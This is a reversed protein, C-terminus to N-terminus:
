QEFYVNALVRWTSSISQIKNLIGQVPNYTFPQTPNSCTVLCTCSSYFLSSQFLLSCGTWHLSYVRHLWHLWINPQLCIKGAGRETGAGSVHESWACNNRLYTLTLGIFNTFFHCIKTAFLAFVTSFIRAHNNDVMNERHIIVRM